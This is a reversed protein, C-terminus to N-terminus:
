SLNMNAVSCCQVPYVSSLFSWQHFVLIDDNESEEVGVSISLDHGSKWAM